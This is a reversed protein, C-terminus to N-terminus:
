IQSIKPLKQLVGRSITNSVMGFRKPITTLRFMYQVVGCRRDPKNRRWIQFTKKDMLSCILQSTEIHSPWKQSLILLVEYWYYSNGFSHRAVIETNKTEKTCLGLFQNKKNPKFESKPGLPHDRFPRSGLLDGMIVIMLPPTRRRVVTKKVEFM